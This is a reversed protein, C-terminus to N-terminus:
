TDKQLMNIFYKAVEICRNKCEEETAFNGLNPKIGKIPSTVKYVLPDGKSRAGDWIYEAILFKGIYLGEASVYKSPITKWVANLTIGEISLINTKQTPNDKKM